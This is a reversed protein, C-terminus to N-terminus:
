KMEKLTKCSLALGHGSETAVYCTTGDKMDVREVVAHGDMYGQVNYYYEAAVNGCAAVALALLGGIIINKM